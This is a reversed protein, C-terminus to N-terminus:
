RRGDSATPQAWSCESWRVTVGRIFGQLQRTRGYRLRLPTALVASCSLPPSSASRPRSPGASVPLLTDLSFMATIVVPGPSIMGVAVADLFEHKGLRHYQDIVYTKLFPVIVLGSGFVLWGTKFFFFLKWAM